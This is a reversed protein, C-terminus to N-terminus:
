KDETFTPAAALMARYENRISIDEDYAEEASYCADLMARTPEKPVLQWGEPAQQLPPNNEALDKLILDRIANAFAVSLEGMPSGYIDSAIRLAEREFDAQNM